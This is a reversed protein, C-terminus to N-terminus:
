KYIHGLRDPVLVLKVVEEVVRHSVGDNTPRLASTSDGETLQGLQIGVLCPLRNVEPVEQSEGELGEAEVRGWLDEGITGVDSPDHAVEVKEVVEGLNSTIM